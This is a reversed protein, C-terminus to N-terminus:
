EQEAFADRLASIPLGYGAALGEHITRSRDCGASAAMGFSIAGQHDLYNQDM